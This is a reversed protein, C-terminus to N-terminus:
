SCTSYSLLNDLILRECECFHAYMFYVMNNNNKLSQFKTPRLGAKFHM